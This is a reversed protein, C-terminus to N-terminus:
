KVILLVILITTILFSVIGGVLFMVKFSKTSFVKIKEFDMGEVANVLEEENKLNSSSGPSDSVFHQAYPFSVVRYPIDKFLGVYWDNSVVRVKDLPINVGRRVECPNFKLSFISADKSDFESGYGISLNGELWLRQDLGDFKGSEFDCDFVLSRSGDSKRMDVYVMGECSTTVVGNSVNADRLGDRKDYSITNSDYDVIIWSLMGTHVDEAIIYFEIRSGWFGSTHATFCGFVCLYQEEDKEFVKTKILRFGEPLLKKAWELDIIEYFLFTAYPEVVFGMYPADKGSSKVLREQIGKPLLKNFSQIFHLSGVDIPNVLGEVGKIFKEKDM